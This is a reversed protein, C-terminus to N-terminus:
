DLYGLSRLAEAESPALERTGTPASNALADIAGVVAEKLAAPETNPPLPKTEGPDQDLRFTEARRTYDVITKFAGAAVAVRHRRPGAVAEVGSEPYLEARLIRPEIPGQLARGLM